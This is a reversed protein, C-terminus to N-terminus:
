SVGIDINDVSQLCTSSRELLKVLLSIDIRDGVQLVLHRLDLLFYLLSLLQERPGGHFALVFQEVFKILELGLAHHAFKFPEIEAWHGM